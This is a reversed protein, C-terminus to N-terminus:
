QLGGAVANAAPKPTEAVVASVVTGPARFAGDVIVKSGAPLGGRLVRSTGQLPGTEVVRREVKNEKNVVLVYKRDQDTGVLADEIVVAKYPVGGQLRIRAQLGPLMEPSVEDIRARVRVTGSRTDMQNDLTEITASYSFANDNALGVKVTPRAGAKLSPAIIRLYSQEDVSFSAYLESDSVIRTLPVSDGGASVVNGPTIEARSIRGSIPARVQTYSLQLQAQALEAKAGKLSAAAERAGHDLADFDKRSISNSAILKQARAQELETLRRQEGVKALNAQAQHVQTQFPAPDITFLLDGQQVQQGDKFHVKLLTGPVKPRVDVVDVAELRGTYDQTDSVPRETAYQIKVVPVAAAPEAQADSGARFFITGAGAIAIAVALVAVQPKNLTKM